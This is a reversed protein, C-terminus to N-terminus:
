HRKFEMTARSTSPIPRITQDEQEQEQEQLTARFGDVSDDCYLLFPHFNIPSPTGSATAWSRPPNILEAMRQWVSAEVASTFIFTIPQMRKAFSNGRDLYVM